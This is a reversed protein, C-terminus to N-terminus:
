VADVTLTQHDSLTLELRATSREVKLLQSQCCFTVGRRTLSAQVMAALEHDCDALISAQPIVQFVQTGLSNLSSASKVAIYTDGIIALRQPQEPLQFLERATILHEVGPIQLQEWESGVAILIKAATVLQKGVKLTHADVFVAHGRIIAVKGSQLHRQHVQHLKQIQRDKAQVFQSWDFPGPSLSWGYGAADRYTDAFSAAYNLLREPICGHNVCTGGVAALEAIAVRAGYTTAREAAALGGSGAGIVLLDYDFAM